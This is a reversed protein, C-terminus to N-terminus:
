FPPRVLGTNLMSRRLDAPDLLHPELHRTCLACQVPAALQHRDVHFAYVVPCRDRGRGAPSSYFVSAPDHLTHARLRRTSRFFIRLAFFWAILAGLIAGIEAFAIVANM